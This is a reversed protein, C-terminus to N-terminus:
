FNAQFIALYLPILGLIAIFALIALLVAVVDIGSKKDVAPRLDNGLNPRYPAQRGSDMTPPMQAPPMQNSAPVNYIPPQQAAYNQQLPQPQAKIPSHSPPQPVHPGGSQPSPIGGPSQYNHQGQPNPVSSIRATLDASQSPSLPPQNAQSQHPPAPIPSRPINAQPPRSAAVPPQSQELMQSLPSAGSVAPADQGQSLEQNLSRLINALQNANQYRGAPEKSMLKYVVDSLRRPVAPNVDSVRPIAERIHALALEKQSGGSYPLKGTLLEFMVIGMSYVDSAPSPVEGRAQEPAFYHPSGWVVEVRQGPNTNSLVQAIGFDTVKVRDEKTVLINQPKVDAHVLHNQHAFGIGDAIQIMLNLVRRVGLVGESKIVKKLDLGEVLEMVIFYTNGSAHDRDFDHVTVINPHSLKAINRAEDQFRELFTPDNTLSPRLIKVAVLRDLNTDIARYIVSMGGSGQQAILRYRNNLMMDTM